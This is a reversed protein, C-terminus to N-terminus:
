RRLRALAGGAAICGYALALWLVVGLGGSVDLGAARHIGEAALPLAGTALVLSGVIGACGIGGAGSRRGVAPAAFAQDLALLGRRIASREGRREAAFQRRLAARTGAAPPTSVEESPSSSADDEAGPVPPALGHRRRWDSVQAVLYLSLVLGLVLAIPERAAQLARGGTVLPTAHRMGRSAWLLLRDLGWISGALLALWAATGLTPGWGDRAVQEGRGGVRRGHKGKM